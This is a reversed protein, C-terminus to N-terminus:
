TPKQSSMIQMTYMGVSRFIMERIAESQCMHSAIAAAMCVSCGTFQLTGNNLGKESVQLDETVIIDFHAHPPTNQTESM